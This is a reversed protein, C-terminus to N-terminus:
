ISTERQLHMKKINIKFTPRYTQINLRIIFRITKKGWLEEYLAVKQYCTWTNTDSSLKVGKTQQHTMFEGSIMEPLRM